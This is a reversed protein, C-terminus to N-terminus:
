HRLPTQQIFIQYKFLLTYLMKGGSCNEQLYVVEKPIEWKNTCYRSREDSLGGLNQIQTWNMRITIVMHKYWDIEFFIMFSDKDHVIWKLEQVPIVGARSGKEKVELSFLWM